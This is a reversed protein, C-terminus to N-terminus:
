TPMQRLAALVAAVDLDGMGSALASTLMRAVTEALPLKVSENSASELVFRLDKVMYTVRGAGRFDGSLFHERKQNLVESAALGGALVEILDHLDLGGREALLIAEALASVTAAVVLQNCAKTLSGAGPPGMRRVLSGMARLYPLVQAYVGEDAGVMISLTGASAGKTGGSVPADVVAIGHAALREALVRLAPPSVTGMVLLTQLRGPGLLGDPGDLVAEVEPLDPLMTIVASAEAAVQAPSAMVRAGANQAAKLPGGSRNWAVVDFGASLLNVVMRLGM